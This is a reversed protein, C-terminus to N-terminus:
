LYGVIVQKSKTKTKKTTTTKTTKTTKSNKIPKINIIKSSINKIVVKVFSKIIDLISEPIMKIRDESTTLIWDNNIHEIFGIPQIVDDSVHIVEYKDGCKDINIKVKDDTLTIGSDYVSVYVGYVQGHYSDGYKELTDIKRFTDILSEKTVTRKFKEYIKTYVKHLTFTSRFNEKSISTIKRFEVVYGKNQVFKIFDRMVKSETIRSPHKDDVYGFIMRKEKPLTVIVTYYLTNIYTLAVIGATHYINIELKGYTPYTIFNTQNLTEYYYKIVVAKGNIYREAFSTNAKEFNEELYKKFLNYFTRASRRVESGSVTTVIV